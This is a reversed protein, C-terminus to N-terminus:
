PVYDPTETDLKTFCVACTPLSFMVFTKVPTRRCCKYCVYMITPPEESKVIKVPIDDPMPVDIEEVARKAKM